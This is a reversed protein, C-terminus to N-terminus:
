QTWEDVTREKKRKPVATVYYYYEDDEFKLKETKRYDLDFFILQLLIGAGVPVALGIVFESVSFLFGFTIMGFIELILYIVVGTGIALQWAYRMEMNRVAFVVVLVASLAILTLVMESNGAFADLMEQMEKILDEQFALSPDVKHAAAKVIVTQIGYYGVTGAAMGFISLPTSLLGFAVPILLPIRLALALPTLILALAHGPALGFYLLLIIFLIGGGVALAAISIGYLHGLILVSALLLITNLPMFSAFLAMILLLITSNLAETQGLLSRIVLFCCFALLFKGLASLWTDYKAQIIRLKERIEQLM